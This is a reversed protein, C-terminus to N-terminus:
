EEQQSLRPKEKAITTCMSTDAQINQMNYYDIMGLNGKESAVAM